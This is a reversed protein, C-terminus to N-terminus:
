RIIKKVVTQKKDLSQAKVIYMGATLGSLNLEEVNNTNVVLEGQSSYIQLDSAESLMLIEGVLSVDLKDEKDEEIGVITTDANTYIKIAFINVPDGKGGASGAFQESSWNLRIYKVEKRFEPYDPGSGGLLTFYEVSEAVEYFSNVGCLEIEGNIPAAFAISKRIFSTTGPLVYNNLYDAGDISAACILNARKAAAGAVFEVREIHAQGTSKIELFSHDKAKPDSTNANVMEIYPMDYFSDDLCAPVLIGDWQKATVNRFKIEIGADYKTETHVIGEDGSPVALNVVTFTPKSSTTQASVSFGAIFALAIIYLQKM